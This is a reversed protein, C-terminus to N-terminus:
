LGYRSKTTNWISSVQGSNLAKDYIAVTSLYGDWYDSLDWREMLRIGSGSSTPTGTYNTSDVLTNNVYLNITSGDYTGVIYYWNGPTLSYGDTIRWGGDFFGVSFPGDNKGLSYNIGGGIFTETVICPASGIEGGTYYHWVGVTWNNLTSLSTNCIAYQSNGSNFNIKGGDGSNYTPGNVLNFVKAGVLDTWVTGTGPYSSPDGADLYLVPTTYSTWYGNSTLWDKATLADIFNQGFLLNCTSVFSEDTLDPTRWFGITPASVNFTGNGATRSGTTQAYCIVYGLNEDPGNWWGLGNDYSIPQNGAAISGVQTTGPIPAGSNYAFSRTTAM